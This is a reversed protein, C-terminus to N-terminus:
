ESGSCIANVLAALIPLPEKKLSACFSNYDEPSYPELISVGLKNALIGLLAEPEILDLGQDILDRLLGNNINLIVQVDSGQKATLQPNGDYGKALKIETPTESVLM